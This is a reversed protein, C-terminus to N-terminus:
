DYYALSILNWVQLKKQYPHENASNDRSLLFKSKTAVVSRNHSDWLLSSMTKRWDKWFIFSFCKIKSNRSDQNSLFPKLILIKCRKHSKLKFYFDLIPIWSTIKKQPVCIQVYISRGVKAKYFVEFIRSKFESIYPM